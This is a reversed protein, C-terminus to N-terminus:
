QISVIQDQEIHPNYAASQTSIQQIAAEPADASFGRILTFEHTIRGGADLVCDKAQKLVSDPTGAPFTVLISNALALPVLGLVTASILQM